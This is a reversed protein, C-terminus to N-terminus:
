KVEILKASDTVIHCMVCPGPVHRTPAKQEPQVPKIVVHMAGLLVVALVVTTGAWSAVRRPLPQPTEPEGPTYPELETQTV